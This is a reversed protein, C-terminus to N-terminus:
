DEQAQAPPVIVLGCSLIIGACYSHDQGASRVTGVKRNVKIGLNEELLQYDEDSLDEDEEDSRDRKHSGGTGSGGQEDDDSEIPDEDVVDDDILGELDRDLDEGDTM